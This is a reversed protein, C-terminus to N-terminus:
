NPFKSIQFNIILLGEVAEREPHCTSPFRYKGEIQLNFPGQLFRYLLIPAFDAFPNPNL